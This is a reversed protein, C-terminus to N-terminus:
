GRGYFKSAANGTRSLKEKGTNGREVLLTHLQARWTELVAMRQELATVNPAPVPKSVTESLDKLSRWIDARDREITELRSVLLSLDNLKSIISGLRNETEKRYEDESNKLHWM